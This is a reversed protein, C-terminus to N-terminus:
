FLDNEDDKNAAKAGFKDHDNAGFATVQKPGESTVVSDSGEQKSPNTPSKVKAKVPKPSKTPAGATMEDKTMKQFHYRFGRLKGTYRGEKYLHEWIKNTPYCEEVMKLIEERNRNFEIKYLGKFAEDKNSVSLMGM